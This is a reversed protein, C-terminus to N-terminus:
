MEVNKLKKWLTTRSIGLEKAIESMSKGLKRKEMAYRRLIDQEIEELTGNSLRMIENDEPLKHKGELESKAIERLKSESYSLGDSIFFLRQAFNILERINGPWCYNLLIDSLYSKIREFDIRHLNDGCLSSITEEFIPIIDEKRDKLSPIDLHLVNVRYYLDKRFKGEEVLKELDKNTAAIIRVEVPIFKTGGVRRIRKEEIVRLLRNQLPLPMEAIEDLFITGKHALEFLGTKGGKKAGTFAGEEYGFLESEM